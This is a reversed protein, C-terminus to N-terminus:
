MQVCGPLFVSQNLRLMLDFINLRRRNNSTLYCTVPLRSQRYMKRWKQLWLIAHKHILWMSVPTELLPDAWWIQWYLNPAPCHACSTQAWVELRPFCVASQKGRLAWSQLLPELFSVWQIQPQRLPVSAVVIQHLGNDIYGVLNYRTHHLPVSINDYQVEDRCRWCYEM